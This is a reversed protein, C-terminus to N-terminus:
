WVFSIDSVRCDNKDREKMTGDDAWHWVIVCQATPNHLAIELCSTFYEKIYSSSFNKM